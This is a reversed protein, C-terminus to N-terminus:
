ERPLAQFPAFRQHPGNFMTQIKGLPGNRNKALDAVVYRIHGGADPPNMNVKGSDIEIWARYLFLVTDADQEIAGSDRLDSLRPPRESKDSDRSLQSLLFVPCHTEMALNKIQKTTAAVLDNTSRQKDKPMQMLQLYDVLHVTQGHRKMADKMSAGLADVSLGPKDYIHIPLKEILHRIDKLMWRQIETLSNPRRIGQLPVECLSSAIRQVIQEEPMELSHIAVPIGQQALHVALGLMFATKGVSPRAAIINLSTEDVGGYFDNLPELHTSFFRKPEVEGAAVREIHTVFDNYAESALRPLNRDYEGRIKDIDRNLDEIIQNADGGSSAEANAKEVSLIIGRLQSYHLVSNALDMAHGTSLVIQELRALALYGGIIELKGDRKLRDALLSLEVPEGNTYMKFMTSYIIGHRHDFFHSSKLIPLLEDMLENDLLICGLLTAEIEENHPMSELESRRRDVNRQVNKQANADQESNSTKAQSLQQDTM